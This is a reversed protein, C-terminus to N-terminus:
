AVSQHPSGLLERIKELLPEADIPKRVFADCGADLAREETPPRAAFATLAIIPIDETKKSAKLRRATEFGDVNPMSLDVIVLDPRDRMAMLIGTEGDSASIAEFGGHVLAHTVVGRSTKGDDIILIKAM